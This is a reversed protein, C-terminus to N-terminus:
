LCVTMADAWLFDFLSLMIGTVAAGIALGKWRAPRACVRALGSIGYVAGVTPPGLYLLVGLSVTLAGALTRDHRGANFDLDTMLSLAVSLFPSAFAAILCIWLQHPWRSPTVGAAYDIIIPPSATNM